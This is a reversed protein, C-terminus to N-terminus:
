IASTQDEMEADSADNNLVTQSHHGVRQDGRVISEM